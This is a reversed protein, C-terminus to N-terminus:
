HLIKAFEMYKEYYSTENGTIYKEEIGFTRMARWKYHDGSLWMEGIDEFQRNECIEKPQLHCHYDIIPMHEAYKHYLMRGTENTLCLEEDFKRNM